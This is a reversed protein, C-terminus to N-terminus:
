VRKDRHLRGYDAGRVWAHDPRYHTNGQWIVDGSYQHPLEAWGGVRAWNSDDMNDSIGATCTDCHISSQLPWLMAVPLNRAPKNINPQWISLVNDNGRINAPVGASIWLYSTDGSAIDPMACHGDAHLFEFGNDYVRTVYLAYDTGAVFVTSHLPIVSCDIDSIQIKNDGAKSAWRGGIPLPKVGISSEYGVELTSDIVRAGQVDLPYLCNEVQLGTVSAPVYCTPIHLGYGGNMLWVDNLKPRDCEDVVLQRSFGTISLKDICVNSHRNIEIAPRANFATCPQGLKYTGIYNPTTHDTSVSCGVFTLGRGETVQVNFNGTTNGLKFVGGDGTRVFSIGFFQPAASSGGPKSYDLWVEDPRLGTLYLTAAHRLRGAADYEPRNSYGQGLWISGEFLNVAEQVAVSRLLRGNAIWPGGKAPLELIRGSAPNRLTALIAATCDQYARAGNATILM